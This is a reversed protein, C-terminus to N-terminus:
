AISAEPSTRRISPGEPRVDREADLARAAALRRVVVRRRFLDDTLGENEYLHLM